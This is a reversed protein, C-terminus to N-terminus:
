DIVSLCAWWMDLGAYVPGYQGTRLSQGMVTLKNKVSKKLCETDIRQVNGLMLESASACETFCRQVIRLCENNISDMSALAVIKGM